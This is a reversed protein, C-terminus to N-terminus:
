KQRDRAARKSLCVRARICAHVAHWDFRTVNAFRARSNSTDCLKRSRKFPCKSNILPANENILPIADFTYIHVRKEM